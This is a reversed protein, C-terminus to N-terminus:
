EAFWALRATHVTFSKIFHQLLAPTCQCIAKNSNRQVGPGSPREGLSNNPLCNWPIKGIISVLVTFESLNATLFSLSFSFNLSLCGLSNFGKSTPEVM